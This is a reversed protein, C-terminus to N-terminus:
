QVQQTHDLFQFKMLNELVELEEAVLDEVQEEPEAAV